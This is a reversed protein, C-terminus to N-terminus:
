RTNQKELYEEILDKYYKSAWERQRFEKGEFYGRSILQNLAWKDCIEKTNYPTTNYEAVKFKNEKIYKEYEKGVDKIHICDIVPVAVESVVECPDHTADTFTDAPLVYCYSEKGYYREKFSNPRAEYYIPNGNEDDEVWGDFMGQGKAAFHLVVLYDHTAYVYPKDHKCKFPELKTLGAKTSGHYVVNKNM